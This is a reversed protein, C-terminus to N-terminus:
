PEYDERSALIEEAIADLEEDTFLFLISAGEYRVDDIVLTEEERDQWFNRAQGPQHYYDVEAPFTRDGKEVNWVIKGMM